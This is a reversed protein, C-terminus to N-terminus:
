WRLLAAETALGPGLALAIGFEGPAPEHSKSIEELVFLTTPSSMNGHRRLVRKSADLEGDDFGMTQGINALVAAGGAHFVWHAIDTQALGFRDLLRKVVKAVAPGAAHRLNKSLTIRYKGSRNALGVADIWTPDIVTEFGLIAPGRGTDGRVGLLNRQSTRPDVGSLVVAAAGDACIANGVVTELTDDVYWCASCVESTVVLARRTSDNRVFDYGRQLAPIAGACGMGVLDARQVHEGMGLAQTLFVSLGPCLYGTCTAAVVFDIERASVGARDLAEQAAAIAMRPAAEAFLSHFEDVSMKPDFQEEALAFHRTDIGCNRFLRRIVPSRYREFHKGFVELVKEQSWEHEPSATAVSSLVAGEPVLWASEPDRRQQIRFPPATASTLELM